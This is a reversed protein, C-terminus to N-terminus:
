AYKSMVKNLTDCVYKVDDFTLSSSCPINIISNHYNYAKEIEYAESNAYPIQEHILGWVPRTQINNEHMKEIIESKYKIYKENLSFSYFWYNPSIEQKFPLLTGYSSNNLYEAFKLYNEKKRKIFGNLQELQAVGIAAQINTMRYNYGIENHVFNLLDDKAQTSWYKIKEAAAVSNTIVMGGGGTTIIKNGNFSYVGIDGITGACRNEYIGSIYKTGLAETADEIVKINFKRSISMLKEMDSMNGFVHVAIIAKVQKNTKNHFLKRDTFTCEDECFKEIKECDICLSDDCDMFVADANLYKIVNVAAIFTLTPAIVLDNEGVNAYKLALHLGATGSQCAVAYKANVYTKITEEFKNVYGGATSVWGEDLAESVYKKENGIINPVSLPIFM